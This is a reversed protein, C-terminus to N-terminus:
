RLGIGIYNVLWKDIIGQIKNSKDPKKM